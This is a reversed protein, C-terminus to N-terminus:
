APLRSAPMIAPEGFRGRVQDLAALLREQRASGANTAFLHLQPSPPALRDAILHLSRITIRRQWARALAQEALQALLFDNATAESCTAQRIIASGDLYELRLGLRRCGRGMRRLGRGIEEVLRCLVVAPGCGDDRALVAACELRPPAVVPALVPTEDIGRALDHILPARKGFLPMLAAPALAALEGVRRLNCRQLLQLDASELGPLLPLPLQALLAAESGAAVQHEGCPKVLRSAAKAVLKNAAVTWIPTLCLDRVITDRLRRAIDRPPGFLRCCGSVDLYLHGGDDVSEVLPTYRGARAALETMARRYRDPHPPLLLADRCRRRAVAVPMTKRVGQRYAEESMDYVLARGTGPAVILPRDRLSRDCLREVAVAFDAINLHIIAREM